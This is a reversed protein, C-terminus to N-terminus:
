LAQFIVKDGVAVGAFEPGSCPLSVREGDKRHIWIGHASFGPKGLWVVELPTGVPIHASTLFRQSYCVVHPAREKSPPTERMHM